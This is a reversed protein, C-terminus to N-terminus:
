LLYLQLHSDSHLQSSPLYPIPFYQTQNTLENFCFIILIRILINKLHPESITRRHICILNNRLLLILELKEFKVVTFGLVEFVEFSNRLHRRSLNKIPKIIFNRFRLLQLFLSFPIFYAPVTKFLEM